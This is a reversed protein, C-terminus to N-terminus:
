LTALRNASYSSAAVAAVLAALIAVVAWLGWDALYAFVRDRQWVGVAFLGIVAVALV